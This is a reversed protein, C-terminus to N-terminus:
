VKTYKRRRLVLRAISNILGSTISNRSLTGAFRYINGPICIVKHSSLSKLSFTVIQEPTMWLFKPISTRSFRTYESTDHFETLIFGPCLAQVQIDSDRLELALAQSFNIL